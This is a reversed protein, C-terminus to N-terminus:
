ESIKGEAVTKFFLDLLLIDYITRLVVCGIVELNMFYSPPLYQESIKGEM